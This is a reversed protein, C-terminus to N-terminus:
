HRFNAQPRPHALRWLDFLSDMVSQLDAVPVDVRRAYLAVFRLDARAQM